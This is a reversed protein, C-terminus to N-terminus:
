GATECTRFKIVGKWLGAQRVYRRLTSYSVGVGDRALLDHIRTLLLRDDKLWAAIRERQRELSAAQPAAPPPATENLRGLQLM